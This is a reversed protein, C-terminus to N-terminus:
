NESRIASAPDIGVARRAPVVCALAAVAVLILPVAVFTLPDTASVGFLQGRLVRTLLAAGVLGLAAGLLTLSMGQRMVMMIVQPWSAGLAIRIGLERRRQQVSYAIVGYIGVAALALALAAFTALLAAYFRREAISERVVDSLPRADYVPLSSDLQHVVDRAGALVATAPGSSRMVVSMEDLPWQALPAYIGPQPRSALSFQRVDGVIGVIRGGLARGDRHWGTELTQGIADENPWYRRAAEASILLVRDGGARDEATFGRGRILPIGMTRFYDATAVRVQAHPEEAGSAEPRGGIAFSLSFGGGSLPLSFSIGSGTVGPLRDLRALLASAFQEQRAADPYRVPSLSLSFTTVRASQFGPDVATLQGFSRLLLGAGALLTIALAVEAVVLIQRLRGGGLSNGRSGARLRGEVARRSGQVAPVLGFLLGSTITLLLAFALVVGDVHVANLLPLEGPALLVLARTGLMALVIGVIGAGLSLVMSETLIQRVLRGRGAGLATRVALEMERGATRGLSLSAVNVCAILMVFGVAGLLVMLPGRVHGVLEEQLPMVRSTVDLNHRQDLRELRGAIASMEAGASGLSAGPALRGVVEIWRAGRAGAAVDSPAFRTTLWLDVDWPRHLDAPAVGIVTTPADDLDITRGIVSPDAGFRRRWLGDSLVAVRPASPADEGAVFGRGHVPRVGLVDFFNASVRAQTLREPEGNGTLNTTSLFFAAMGAFSRAQSRWDFFDPPSVAATSGRIVSQIAVLRAPEPYPLARLLVGRVVSFIATNAGVGLALTLIAIVVFARGRGLVRLAYRTDQRLEELWWGGRAERAEDQFRAVGGFRRRAVRSATDADAGFRGLDDAEMDLHFRMEDDMEREVADHDFLLRARRRLKELWGM